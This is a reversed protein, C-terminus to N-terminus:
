HCTIREILSCFVILVSSLQSFIDDGVITGIAEDQVWVPLVNVRHTVIVVHLGHETDVVIGLTPPIM